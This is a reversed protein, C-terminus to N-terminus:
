AVSTSLRAASATVRIRDRYARGYQLAEAELPHHRYQWQRRWSEDMVLGAQSAAAALRMMEQWAHQSAAHAKLTQRAHMMEHAITERRKWGPAAAWRSRGLLLTRKEPDWAAIASGSLSREDEAFAVEFSDEIRLERAILRAESRVDDITAGWSKIPAFVAEANPGGGDATAEESSWILLEAFFPM